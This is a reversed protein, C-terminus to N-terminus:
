ATRRFFSQVEKVPRLRANDLLRGEGPAVM